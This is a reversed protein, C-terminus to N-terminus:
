IIQVIALIKDYNKQNFKNQGSFNINKRFINVLYNKIILFFCGFGCLYIAMLIFFGEFIWSHIGRCIGKKNFEIKKGQHCYKKDKGYRTEHFSLIKISEV